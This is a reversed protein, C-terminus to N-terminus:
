ASFMMAEMASWPYSTSTTLRVDAPSAYGTGQLCRTVSPPTSASLERRAVAVRVAVVARYGNGDARRLPVKRGRRSLRPTFSLRAMVGGFGAEASDEGNGYLHM